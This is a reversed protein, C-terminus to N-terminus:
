GRLDCLVVIVSKFLSPDPSPTLGRDLFNKLEKM